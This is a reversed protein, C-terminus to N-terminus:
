TLHLYWQVTNLWKESFKNWKCLHYLYVSIVKMVSWKWLDKCLDFMCIQTLQMIFYFTTHQILISYSDNCNRRKILICQERKLKFSSVSVTNRPTLPLLLLWTLPLWVMM